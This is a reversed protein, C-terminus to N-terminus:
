KKNFNLQNLKKYQDFNNLLKDRADKIINKLQDISMDNIYSVTSKIKEMRKNPNLEEDYSEDWYKDFTEFGLKHLLKLSNPPGIYVFPRLNNIPKWTKETFFVCPYHFVTESVIEVASVQLDTYQYRTNYSNPNTQIITSVTEECNDILEYNNLFYNENIRTFPDVNLFSDTTKSDISRDNKDYGLKTQTPKKINKPKKFSYVGNINNKLYWNSFIQRHFRHIQSLICTKKDIAHINIDIKQPQTNDWLLKQCPTYVVDPKNILGLMNCVYNIENTIDYHNTVFLISGPDIDVLQFCKLTNYIIDSIVFNEFYWATDFHQLIIRQGPEYYEKRNKILQNYLEYFNHQYYFLDYNELIEYKSYLQKEVSEHLTRLTM